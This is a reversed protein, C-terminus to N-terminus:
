DWFFYTLGAGLDIRSINSYELGTLDLMVSAGDHEINLKKITGVTVGLSVGLHFGGGLDFDLGIDGSFGFTSGSLKYKDIVLADNSYTLIGLALNSIFYSSGRPLTRRIALAPGLFQVTIDDELTGYTRIGNSDAIFINKLENQTKFLSYKAGMGVNDSVYYGLDAEFYNGSKLEEVYPIFDQPINDPVGGLLNGLGGSVSIRVRPPKVAVGPSDLGLESLSNGSVRQYDVAFYRIMSRPIVAKREVGDELFTIHLMDGSIKEIKCKISDGEKPLIVDQAKLGPLLSIFFISFIIARLM